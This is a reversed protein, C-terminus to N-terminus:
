KHRQFINKCAKLFDSINRQIKSMSDKQTRKKEIGLFIEQCTRNDNGAELYAKIFLTKDEDTFTAMRKTTRDLFVFENYDPRNVQSETLDIIVLQPGANKEKKIILNYLAFDLLMIESEKVRRTLEGFKKILDNKLARNEKTEPTELNQVFFDKANNGMRPNVGRTVIVEELLFGKKRTLYFLTEATLIGKKKCAQEVFWSNEASSKMFLLKIMKEFYHYKTEFSNNSSFRIVLEDMIQRCDCTKIFLEEKSNKIDIYCRYVCTGKGKNERVLKANPNKQLSSLPDEGLFELISSPDTGSDSKGSFSHWSLDTSGTYIENKKLNM